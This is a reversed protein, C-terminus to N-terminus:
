KKRKPEVPRYRPDLELAEIGRELAVRAISHRTTGPVAAAVADLREILEAPIRLGLLPSTPVRGPYEVIASRAM